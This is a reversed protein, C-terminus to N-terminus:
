ERKCVVSYSYTRGDTLQSNINLTLTDGALLYTGSCATFPLQSGEGLQLSFTSGDTQLQVAGQERYGNQVFTYVGATESFLDVALTINLEESRGSWRGAFPSPEPPLVEITNEAMLTGNVWLKSNLEGASLFYVRDAASQYRMVYASKGPELDMDPTYSARTNMGGAVDNLEMQLSSIHITQDSVNLLRYRDTLINNPDNAADMRITAGRPTATNWQLSYTFFGNDLLYIGPIAPERLEVEQEFLLGRADTIKAMYRGAPMDRLVGTDRFEFGSVGERRDMHEPVVRSFSPDTMGALELTFDMEPLVDTGVTWFSLIVTSQYSDTFVPTTVPYANGIIRGAAMDMLGLSIRDVIYGRPAPEAEETPRPTGCDPCFKSTLEEAGCGPCTWTLAPMQTGCDPCFKSAVDPKGCNPCAQGDALAPVLLANLLLVTLLLSLIKKM